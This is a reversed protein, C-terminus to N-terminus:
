QIWSKKKYKYDKCNLKKLKSLQLEFNLLDLCKNSNNKRAYELLYSYYNSYINESYEMKSSNIWYNFNRNLLFTFPFISDNRILDRVYSNFNKIRLMILSNFKTYYKKNIFVKYHNPIFSFIIELLELPLKDIYKM